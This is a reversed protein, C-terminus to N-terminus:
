KLRAFPYAVALYRELSLALSTYLSGVMGIHAVPLSYPMSITQFLGDFMSPVLSPLSFLSVASILYM